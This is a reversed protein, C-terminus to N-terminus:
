ISSIDQELTMFKRKRRSDSIMIFKGSTYNGYRPLYYTRNKNNQIKQISLEGENTYVFDYLASTEFYGKSTKTRGDDLEKLNKGSNLIIHLKSNKLFANYSPKTDKKLFVEEGIQVVVKM